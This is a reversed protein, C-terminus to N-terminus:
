KIEYYVGAPIKQDGKKVLVMVSIEKILSTLIPM